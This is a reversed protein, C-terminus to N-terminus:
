RACSFISYFKLRIDKAEDWAKECEHKAADYNKLDELLIGASCLYIAADDDESFTTTTDLYAVATVTDGQTLYYDSINYSALEATHRDKQERALALAATLDRLGNEYDRNRIEISGYYMKAEALRKSKPFKSQEEIFKRESPINDGEYYYSIGIMFLCNEVYESTPYYQLVKSAKAIAIDFNQKANGSITFPVQQGALSAIRNEKIGNEVDMMAANFANEGNYYTNFYATFNGWGDEVSSWIFCGGFAASALIVILFTNIKKLVSSCIFYRRRSIM